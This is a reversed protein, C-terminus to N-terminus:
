SGTSYQLVYGNSVGATNVDTLDNLALTVTGTQGNVSSVGGGGGPLNFLQSGDVAPLRGSSDLAVIDNPSTGIDLAAKKIKPQTM